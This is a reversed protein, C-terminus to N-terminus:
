HRRTRHLVKMTQERFPGQAERFMDLAIRGSIIIRDARAEGSSGLKDDVFRSVQKRYAPRRRTELARV